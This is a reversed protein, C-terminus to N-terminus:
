LCVFFRHFSLFLVALLSFLSLPHINTTLTPFPLNGPLHLVPATAGGPCVPGHTFHSLDEEGQDFLRHPLLSDGGAWRSCSSSLSCPKSSGCTQWPFLSFSLGKLTTHTHWREGLPDTPTGKFILRYTTLFIAGEAPLLPPGGMQGTAEERGDPVLHVRMADMVLEEGPLLTPRLLKPQVCVPLSSSLLFILSAAACLPLVSSSELQPM